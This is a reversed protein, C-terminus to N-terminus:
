FVPHPTNNFLIYQVELDLEIKIELSSDKADSQDRDKIRFKLM